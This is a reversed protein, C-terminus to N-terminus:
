ACYLVYTKTKDYKTGWSDAKRPGERIAGKIKSGSAKWDRNTRVDIIVVDPKGLLTKVEEKSMRPTEGAVAPMCFLGLFAFAALVALGTSFKEKM